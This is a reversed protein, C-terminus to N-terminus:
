LVKNETGTELLELVRNIIEEDYQDKALTLGSQKDLFIFIDQKRNYVRYIENYYIAQNEETTEIVFRDEYFTIQVEFDGLNNQIYARDSSRYIMYRTFFPYAVLFIGLILLLYDNTLFFFVIQTVGFMPGLVQMIRLFANREIMNFVNYRRLEEKTRKILLTPYNMM